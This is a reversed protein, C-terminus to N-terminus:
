DSTRRKRGRTRTALIRGTMGELRDIFRKDGLPRGNRSHIPIQEATADVAGESLYTAWDDVHELLPRVEVLEDDCGRLHPRASSWSWESAEQCFGASVPNREVYRIAALLHPEDMPFSYFREQWLHGRWDKRSNVALAYRRHAEGLSARLGDVDSPVMILHVHNPMLCYALVRTGVKRCSKSMLDLYARYDDDRFFTQQRRSGRQTVHHPIQPIVCRAMRAM